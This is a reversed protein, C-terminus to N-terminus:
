GTEGKAEKICQEVTYRSSAVWILTELSAEPPASCLYYALEDPKSISRRALLWIDPGPFQDRSEVVPQCAWDSIISGKEGEM